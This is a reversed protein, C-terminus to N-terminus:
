HKIRITYATYYPKKCASIKGSYSRNEQTISLDITDICYLFVKVIKDISTVISLTFQHSYGVSGLGESSRTYQSKRINLVM